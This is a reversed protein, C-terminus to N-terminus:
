FQQNSKLFVTLQLLYLDTIRRLQVNPTIVYCFGWPPGTKLNSIQYNKKGEFVGRESNMLDIGIDNLAV